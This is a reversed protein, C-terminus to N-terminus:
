FINAKIPNILIEGAAAMRRAIEVIEECVMDGGRPSVSQFEEILVAARSEPLAALLLKREKLNCAQMAVALSADSVQVLVKALEARGVTLLQHFDLMLAEVRDASAPNASRLATLFESEKRAEIERLMAAVRREGDIASEVHAGMNELAHELLYDLEQIAQQSVGELAALRTLIDRQRESDFALLLDRAQDVPLCAVLAAQIQPHEGRLLNAIIDPKLWKLKDIQRSQHRVGLNLGLLESVDSGLAEDLVDRIQSVREQPVIPLTGVSDLFFGVLQQLQANDLEPLRSLADLVGKVVTPELSKLLIIGHTRDLILFLAAAAESGSFEGQHQYPHEILYGLQRAVAVPDTELLRHLEETYSLVSAAAQRSTEPAEPTHRNSIPEASASDRGLRALLAGSLGLVALLIGGGFLASWAEGWPWLYVFAALLIALSAGWGAYLLAGPVVSSKNVSSL